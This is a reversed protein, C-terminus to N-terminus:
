ICKIVVVVTICVLCINYTILGSKAGRGLPGIETPKVFGPLLNILYFNISYREKIQLWISYVFIM